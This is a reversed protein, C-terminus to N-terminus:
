FPVLGVFQEPQFGNKLRAGQKLLFDHRVIEAQQEIGYDAFAKGPILRYDYRCFPHRAIPLFIGQQHQWVHVMEHIFLGKLNLDTQAYDDRFLGGKPHFWLNGDPAMTVRKPQFPWWKRNFIQVAQYDIADGFVSRCLNIEAEALM